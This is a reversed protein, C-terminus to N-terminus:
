TKTLAFSFSCVKVTQDESASAFCNADKPNFTIQCVTGSHEDDFTRTCQWGEEWNWLRIPSEHASSLVYLQTPHITMATVSSSGARFSMIQQVIETGYTCVHIFGDDAGVILFSFFIHTTALASASQM